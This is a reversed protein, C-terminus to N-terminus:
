CIHKSNRNSLILIKNMKGNNQCDPDHEACIRQRDEGRMISDYCDTPHACWNGGCYNRTALDYGPYTKNVCAGKYRYFM